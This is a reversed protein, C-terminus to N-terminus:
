ALHRCPWLRIECHINYLRVANMVVSMVTILLMILTYGQPM